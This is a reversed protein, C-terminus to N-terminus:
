KVEGYRKGFDVGADLPIGPMWPPEKVMQLKVWDAAEQAESEGVVAILEDHVTGAVFYRKSVRLMGDTMIIRALAQSINEVLKAGFLRKSGYVYGDATKQM